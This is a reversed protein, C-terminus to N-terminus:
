RLLPKRPKASPPSGGTRDEGSAVGDLGSVGGEDRLFTQLARDLGKISDIKTGFYEGMDKAAAHLAQATEGDARGDAKVKFDAAVLLKELRRIQAPSYQRELNALTERATEESVSGAAPRRTRGGRGENEGRRRMHEDYVDRYHGSPLRDRIDESDPARGERREGRAGGGGLIRVMDSTAVNGKNEKIRDVIERGASIKDGNELAIKEPSAIKTDTWEVLAKFMGARSGADRVGGLLGKDLAMGTRALQEQQKLAHAFQREVDPDSFQVQKLVELAALRASITTVEAENKPAAAADKGAQGLNNQLAGQKQELQGRMDEPVEKLVERYRANIKDFDGQLAKVQESTMDPLYLAFQRMEDLAKEAKGTPSPAEGKILGETANLASLGNTLHARAAAMQEDSLPEAITGTTIKFRRALEANTPMAAEEDRNLGSEEKPPWTNYIRRNRGAEATARGNASGRYGYGEDEYRSRRQQPRYYASEGRGRYPSSDGFPDRETSYPDRADSVVDRVIGGIGVGLAYRQGGGYYGGGDGYGRSPNNRRYNEYQDPRLRYGGGYGGGYGTEQYGYGPRAGYYGGGGQGTFGSLLGGVLGEWGGGGGRRGWGNGGGSWGGGSSRSGGGVSFGPNNAKFNTSGSISVRTEM